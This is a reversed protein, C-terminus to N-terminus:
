NETELGIGTDHQALLARGERTLGVQEKFNLDLIAEKPDQEPGQRSPWTGGRAGVSVPSRWAM